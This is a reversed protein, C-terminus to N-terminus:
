RLELGLMDSAASATREDGGCGASTILAPSRALTRKRSNKADAMRLGFVRRAYACATLSNRAHHASTPTVDIVATWGSWTAVQISNCVCVNAAGVTLCCRAAM